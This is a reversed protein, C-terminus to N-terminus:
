RTKYPVELVEIRTEKTLNEDKIAQYAVLIDKNGASLVAIDTGAYSSVVTLGTLQALQQATVDKKLLVTINGSLPALKGTFINQVLSGAVVNDIPTDLQVIAQNGRVSITAEPLAVAANITMLNREVIYHGFDPKVRQQVRQDKSLEVDLNPQAITHTALLTSVIASSLTLLKM